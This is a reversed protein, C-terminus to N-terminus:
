AVRAHIDDLEVEVRNRGGAKARYLAADARKEVATIDEGPRYRALGISVTLRLDPSIASFNLSSIAKRLREAVIKAGELDTQTLMVEFEEGGYRGFCDLPRVTETGCDAFAKLVADGTQHGYKDNIKKFFDLDLIAICFPAGSRDCRMKEQQLVMCLHRRNYSGTLPDRIALEEVAARSDNLTKRLRNIYSGTVAIWLLVVGFVTLRLIELRLDMDQPRFQMLAVIMVGYGIISILALGLLKNIPLRFVGFVFAMLMFPLLVSRADSETYFMAVMLILIASLVQPATLSPESFRFNIGSRLLVYYFAAFFAIGGCVLIFGTEALYGQWYFFFILLLVVSTSAAAAWYSKLYRSQRTGPDGPRVDNSVPYM